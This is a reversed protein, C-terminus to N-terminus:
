VAGSLLKNELKTRQLATAIALFSILERAALSASAIGTASHVLVTGPCRQGPLGTRGECPVLRRAWFDSVYFINPSFELFPFERVNSV